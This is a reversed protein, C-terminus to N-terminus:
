VLKLGMVARYHPIRETLCLCVERCRCTMLPNITEGHDISALLETFKVIVATLDNWTEIPRGPFGCRFAEQVVKYSIAKDRHGGQNRGLDIFLDFRSVLLRLLKVNDAIRYKDPAIGHIKHLVVNLESTVGLAIHLVDLQLMLLDFLNESNVDECTSSERHAGFLLNSM